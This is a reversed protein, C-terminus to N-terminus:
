PTGGARKAYAFWSPKPTGDVEFMGMRGSWDVTEGPTNFDQVSFYYARRLKLRRANKRFLRYSKSLRRAQQPLSSRFPSQAFNDGGTAWGFETVWIKLKRSGLKDVARRTAVLRELVQKPSSGYPHIALVNFRKRVKRIRYMRKLFVNASPGGVSKYPILGATVVRSALDGARLGKKSIALLQAYRRPNPKQSGWYYRLNPENWIQWFRIPRYPIQPNSAWFSGNVGYRAALDTLFRQWGGRAASGGLPPTRPNAAVWKPVGYLLPLVDVRNSAANGIVADAGGWNRSGATPEISGWDFTVRVTKVGGTSLRQLVPASPEGPNSAGYFGKPARAADAAPAAILGASLVALIM